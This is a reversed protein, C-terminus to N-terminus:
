YHMHRYILKGNVVKEFEKTGDCRTCYKHRYYSSPFDFKWSSLTYNIGNMDIIEEEINHGFFWCVPKTDYILNYILNGNDYKKDSTVSDCFTCIDKSYISSEFNDDLKKVRHGFSKCILKKLM